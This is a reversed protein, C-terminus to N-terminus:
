GVSARYDITFGHDDFGPADAPLEDIHVPTLRGRRVSERSALLVMVAECLMEIDAPFSNEGSFHAVVDELLACYFDNKVTASWHGNAGSVSLFFGGGAQLELM